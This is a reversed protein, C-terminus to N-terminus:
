KTSNMARVLPSIKTHTGNPVINNRIRGEGFADCWRHAYEKISMRILDLKISCFLIFLVEHTFWDHGRLFSAYWESCCIVLSSNTKLTQIWYSKQSILSARSSYKIVDLLSLVCLWHKTFCICWVNMNFTLVVTSWWEIM